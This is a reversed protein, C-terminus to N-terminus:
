SLGLLEKLKEILIKNDKRSKVALRIFDKELGRYSKCNRILIGQKALLDTLQDSDYKSKSIDVFIYNATPKYVTLGKMKSLEQYLYNKEIKMKERTLCYFDKDKFVLEGALQALYNVSWPDNALEMQAVIKENVIGYGLRLGPIAYLKTLSRLVFLNNYKNVLDIVTYDDPNDIFNIFAEDLVVFADQKVAYNLLDIIRAREILVGTPNNPNCIFLLNVRIMRKKVDSIKIEFNNDKPLNLHKVEGGMSRVALEYESFTPNLILAKVPKIVKVFQYILDVAGNGVIINNHSVVMNSAIIKKLSASNPEPYQAINYLHAKIGKLVIEPPGLFNINASFDIISKEKLGYKKVAVKINGGHYHEM